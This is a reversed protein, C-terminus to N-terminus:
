CVEMFVARLFEFNCVNCFVDSTRNCYGLHLKTTEYKDPTIKQSIENKLRVLTVFNVFVSLKEQLKLVKQLTIKM